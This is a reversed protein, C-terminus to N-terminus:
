PNLLQIPIQRSYQQFDPDATLVHFERRTAYACILYDVASGHVGAAMCANYYEAATEHDAIEMPADPFARLQRRLRDLQLPHRIGSLLEQRVIGPLVVRGDRILDNLLEVHSSAVPVRRRLALSWVSTDVVVKM